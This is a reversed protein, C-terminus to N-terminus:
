FDRAAIGKLFLHSAIRPLGPSSLQSSSLIPHNFIEQQQRKLFSIRRWGSFSLSLLIIFTSSLGTVDQEPETACLCCSLCQGQNDRTHTDHNDRAFPPLTVFCMPQYMRTCVRIVIIIWSCSLLCHYLNPQLHFLTFFYPNPLISEFLFFNLYLIYPRGNQSLSLIRGM